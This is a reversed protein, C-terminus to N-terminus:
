IIKSPASKLANYERSPKYVPSTKNFRCLLANSLQKVRESSTKGLAQIESIVSTSM